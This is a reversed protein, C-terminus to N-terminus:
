NRWCLLARRRSLAAALHRLSEIDHHPWIGRRNRAGHLHLCKRKGEAVACSSMNQAMFREITERRAPRLSASALGVCAAAALGGISLYHRPRGNLSPMGRWAMRMIAASADGLHQNAMEVM